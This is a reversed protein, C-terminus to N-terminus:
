PKRGFLGQQANHERCYHLDPGAVTSCHECMPVNCTGSVHGPVPYDCRRTAVAGCFRCAPPKKGRTCVFVVNGNLEIRHCTM